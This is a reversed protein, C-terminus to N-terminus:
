MNKISALPFHICDQIVFSEMAMGLEGIYKCVLQEGHRQCTPAEGTWVVEMGTCVCKRSVNGILAYGANCSYNAVTGPVNDNLLQAVQGSELNILNPCVNGQPTLATFNM